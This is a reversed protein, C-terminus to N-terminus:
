PVVRERVADRHRGLVVGIRLMALGLLFHLWNAARDLGLINAGSSEDIILGYLWLVLYILGGGLFYTRASEWSSSLAFGAVAYFLYVANGLINVGVFGIEQAGAGDFSTLDGYHTTIGPILGGIGVILFIAGFLRAALQLGSRGTTIAARDRTRAM